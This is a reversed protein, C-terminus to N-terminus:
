FHPFNTPIIKIHTGGLLSNGHWNQFSESLCRGFRATDSVWCQFHCFIRLPMLQKGQIHVATVLLKCKYM